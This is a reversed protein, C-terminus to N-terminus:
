RRKKSKTKNIKCGCKRCCIFEQPPHSDKKLIAVDKELEEIYRGYKDLSKAHARVQLDLENDEEVYKRLKRLENKQMVRKLVIDIVKKLVLGQLM